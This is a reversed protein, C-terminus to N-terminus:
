LPCTRAAFFLVDRAALVPNTQSKIWGKHKQTVSLNPLILFIFVKMSSKLKLFVKANM